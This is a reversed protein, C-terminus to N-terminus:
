GEAQQRARIGAIVAWCDARARRDRQHRGVPCEVFTGCLATRGRRPYVAHVASADNLMSIIVDAREAVERATDAVRLGTAEAGTRSRNSVIAEEGTEQLRAAM